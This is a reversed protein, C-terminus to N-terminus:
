YSWPTVVTLAGAGILSFVLDQRCAKAPTLTNLRRSRANHRNTAVPQTTEAQVWVSSRSEVRPGANSIITFRWTGQAGSTAAVAHRFTLITLRSTHVSTTSLPNPSPRPTGERKFELSASTAAGAPLLVGEGRCRRGRDRRRPRGTGACALYRRRGAERSM